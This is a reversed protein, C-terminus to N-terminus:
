PRKVALTIQGAHFGAHLTRSQLVALRNRLPEKAFDEESVAEHKTLWEEPPLAVFAAMLQQNVESWARRLEDASVRDASKKDPESIFDDLEPHLREGLGLLPFLRDHVATLHGLLYFVRNRGPAVETQLDEDSLSSFMQDLRDIGLKWSNITTKAFLEENTM